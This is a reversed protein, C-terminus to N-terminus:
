ASCFGTSTVGPRKSPILYAFAPWRWSIRRRRCVCLAEAVPQGRGPLGRCRFAGARLDPLASSRVALGRRGDAAQCSARWRASSWLRLSHLWIAPHHSSRQSLLRSKGCMILVRNQNRLLVPFKVSCVSSSKHFRNHFSHKGSAQGAVIFSLQIHNPHVSGYTNRTSPFDTGGVPRFLLLQNVYLRIVFHRIRNTHLGSILLLCFFNCLTSPPNLWHRPLHHLLPVTRSFNGFAINSTSGSFLCTTNAWWRFSRRVKDTNPLCTVMSSDGHNRCPVYRLSLYSYSLWGAHRIAKRQTHKETNMGLIVTRCFLSKSWRGEIESLWLLCWDAVRCCGRRRCRFKKEEPGKSGEM